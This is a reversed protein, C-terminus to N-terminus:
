GHSVIVEVQVIRRRDRAMQSVIIAAVDFEVQMQKIGRGFVGVPALDRSDQETDIGVRLGIACSPNVIRMKFPRSPHGALAVALEDAPAPRLLMSALSKAALALNESGSM